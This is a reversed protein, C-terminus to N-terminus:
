IQFMHSLTQHTQIYIRFVVPRDATICTMLDDSHSLLNLDAWTRDLDRAESFLDTGSLQSCELYQCYPQVFTINVLSARISRGGFM